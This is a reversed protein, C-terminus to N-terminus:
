QKKIIYYNYSKQFNAKEEADKVKGYTVMTQKLKPQALEVSAPAYTANAFERGNLLDFVGVPCQKEIHGVSRYIRQLVLWGTFANESQFFSGKRILSMQRQWGM